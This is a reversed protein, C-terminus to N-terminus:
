PSFYVERRKKQMYKVNEKISDAMMKELHRCVHQQYMGLSLQWRPVKAQVGYKLVLQWNNYIIGRLYLQALQVVPLGNRFSSHIENIMRFATEELWRKKYTVVLWRCWRATNKRPRLTTIFGSLKNMAEDFNIIGRRFDDRIKLASEGNHGILALSVHVSSPWPKTKQTQVFFYPAVLNRLGLLFAKMAMRVRFYKKVPIIVGWGRTKLEKVLSVRYFERDMLLYNLKFGQWKLWESAIGIHKARYQKYRLLRFESFLTVGCGQLAMAQFMRAKQTGKQKHTGMEFPPQPIGYYPYETNDVLLRMKSGGITLDRIKRNLACLVNGFIFHVDKESLRRFFKDVDTQHPVLRRHRKGDGFPKLHVHFKDRYQLSFYKKLSESAATTSQKSVLAYLKVFVYDAYSYLRPRFKLAIGSRAVLRNVFDKFEGLLFIEKPFAPIASQPIPVGM